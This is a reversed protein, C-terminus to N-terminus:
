ESAASERADAAAAGSGSGEGDSDEDVTAGGAGAGAGSAGGAGADGTGGGGSRRILDGSARDGDLEGGALVIENSLRKTYLKAFTLFGTHGAVDGGVQRTSLALPGTLHAPYPPVERAGEVGRAAHMSPVAAASSESGAASGDAAGGVAAAGSSSSAAGAGAHAEYDLRSRKGLRAAAGGAASTSAAAAAYSGSAPWSAYDSSSTSEAFLSPMAPQPLASTVVEFDRGLAEVTLIDEFGLARLKACSRQVQEVCPSFCCVTGNRPKLSAYAHPLAEWPKPLDLFVGDATNDIARGFGDVCADAHKVTVVSSIGLAVFEDAAVRAREANFEFTHVHGHPAVARALANTLSGSGTGSEVVVSGPLLNLNAVVLSIDQFYLIQTRHLLARSWLEPTHKFIHAFGSKGGRRDRTLIKSGHPKGIMDDHHFRGFKTDFSVGKRLTIHSLEGNVHFIVIEGVRSVTDCPRAASVASASSPLAAAM